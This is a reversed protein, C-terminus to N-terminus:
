EFHGQCKVQLDELGTLDDQVIFELFENNSAVLNVVAGSKEFTWRGTTSKNGAGATAGYTVDYMDEKLDKNSKWIAITSYSEGNNINKRIHVGNTLATIGGFLIDSASASHVMQTIMRTIDIVETGRPKMIFVQPTVAGNVAMNFSTQDIQSGDPLATDVGADITLTDTAISIIERYSHVHVAGAHIDIKDGVNFGTADNLVITKSDVATIGDTTNEVATELNFYHNWMRHHAHEVHVSLYHDGSDGHIIEAINGNADQLVAGVQPRGDTEKYPKNDWFSGSGEVSYGQGTGAM